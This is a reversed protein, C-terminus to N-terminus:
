SADWHLFELVQRMEELLLAIEESWHMAHAHGKCWEMHVIAFISLPINPFLFVVRGGQVIPKEAVDM